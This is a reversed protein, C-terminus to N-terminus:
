ITDERNMIDIISDNVAWHYADYLTNNAEELIREVNSVDADFCATSEMYLVSMDEKEEHPLIFTKIDIEILGVSFKRVGVETNHGSRVEIEVLSDASLFNQSFINQYILRNAKAQDINEHKKFSFINLKRLGVKVDSQGLVNFVYEKIPYLHPLVSDYFTHYDKYGVSLMSASPSFHFALQTKDDRLGIQKKLIQDTVVDIGFHKKFFDVARKPIDDKAISPYELRVDVQQLFTNKYVKRDIHIFSGNM